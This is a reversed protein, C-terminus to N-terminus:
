SNHMRMSIKRASLSRARFEAEQLRESVSWGKCSRGEEDKFYTIRGHRNLWRGYISLRSIVAQRAM